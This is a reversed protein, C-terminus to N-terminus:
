ARAERAHLRKVAENFDQRALRLRSYATNVPISMAEAIEAMPQGDLEYMVFVARRELELGRIIEMALELGQRTALAEETDASGHVGDLEAGLQERQHNLRRKFDLVLRYAIGFLWPRIPRSPDYSHWRRFATAFVDHTLDQLDPGRIGLRMLSSWVYSLEARYVERLQSPECSRTTPTEGPSTPM